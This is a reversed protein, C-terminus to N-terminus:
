TSQVQEGHSWCTDQLSTCLGHCHHDCRSANDDWLWHGEGASQICPIHTASAQCPNKVTDNVTKLRKQYNRKKNKFTQICTENYHVRINNSKSRTHSSIMVIKPQTIRNLVTTNTWYFGAGSIM